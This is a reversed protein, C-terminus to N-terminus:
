ELYESAPKLQFAYNYFYTDLDSQAYIYERDVYYSRHGCLVDYIVANQPTNKNIFEYITYLPLERRLYSERTERLTIYKYINLKNFIEFTYKVNYGIYFATLLFTFYIVYINKFNLLKDIALVNLIVLSPVIPIVYRTRSLIQSSVFLIFFSFILLYLKDSSTNDYRNKRQPLPLFLAPLLLLMMPNLKGDFQLFNNDEGTFFFRLPLLFIELHSEGSARRFLFENYEDQYLPVLINLSNPFISHFLPYFPNGGSVYYNRILWPSALLFSITFFQMGYM